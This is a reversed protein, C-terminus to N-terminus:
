TGYRLADPTPGGRCANIMADLMATHLPRVFRLGLFGDQAWRVQGDLADFGDIEVKAIQGVEFEDSAIKSIRCGELSLEVLLGRLPKLGSKGIRARSCVAFRRHARIVLISM